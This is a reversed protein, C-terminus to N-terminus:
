PEEVARKLAKIFRGVEERPLSLQGIVEVGVVEVADLGGAHSRRVHLAHGSSTEVTEIVTGQRKDQIRRARGGM